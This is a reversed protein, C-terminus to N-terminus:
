LICFTTKGFQHTVRYLLVQVNKFPLKGTGYAFPAAIAPAAAYTAAALPAAAIAPAAAYTVAPAAVAQAIPDVFGDQNLDESFGELSLPRLGRPTAVADGYAPAVPGAVVGTQTYAAYPYAAAAIPAAAIM